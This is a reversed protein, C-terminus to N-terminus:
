EEEKDMRALAEEDVYHEGIDYILRKKDIINLCKRTDETQKGFYIRKLKFSPTFNGYIPAFGRVSVIADGKNNGNIRELESASIVPKSIVSSTTTLSSNNGKSISDQVITKTGCLESFEQRTKLDDSGIFVKVNCNSKVVEAEDRGYVNILQSFSQIVFQFRIGRSRGVTVMNCLGQVKPLNGFEDLIFYVNRKLVADDMEKRLQNLNAKYVLQKYLQSIFLTVFPHRATKEDPVVIFLAVPKEDIDDLTIDSYSTLTLIGEDQFKNVYIFLNSFFSALTRDETMLVNNALSYININDSHEELLYHKLEKPNLTAYKSLNFVLNYLVLQEEKMNDNEIDDCFALLLGLILNRAGEEWMPQSKDRVECTTYIFDRALDQVEDKLEMIKSEIEMYSGFRIGCCEIDTGYSSLACKGMEKIQRIRTLLIELPNWRSSYFPKRLDIIKIEYGMKKLFAAHKSHLEMKPDTIVLSPKTRSHSLFYINQDVFGTTKGSGTTGVVLTHLESTTIFDVGLSNSKASIVTGDRYMKAEGVNFLEFTNSTRLQSKNLWTTSEIESDKKLGKKLGTSTKSIWVIAIIGIYSAIALYFEKTKLMEKITLDLTITFALAICDIGFTILTVIVFGKLIKRTKNKDM